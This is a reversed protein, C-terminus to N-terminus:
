DQSSERTKHITTILIGHERLFIVGSVSIDRNFKQITLAVSSNTSYPLRLSIWLVSIQYNIQDKTLIMM